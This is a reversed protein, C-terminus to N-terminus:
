PQKPYKKHVEQVKKYVDNLLKTVPLLSWIADLQDQVSPMEKERLKNADQKVPIKM